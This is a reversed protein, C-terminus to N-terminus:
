KCRKLDQEYARNRSPQGHADFNLNAGSYKHSQRLNLEPTGNHLGLSEAYYRGEGSDMKLMLEKGYRELRVQHWQGDSAPVHSLLLVM